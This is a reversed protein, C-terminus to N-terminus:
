SVLTGCHVKMPRPRMLRCAGGCQLGCRASFDVQSNGWSTKLVYVTCGYESAGLGICCPKKPVASKKLFHHMQLRCKKKGWPLFRGKLNWSSQKRLHASNVINIKGSLHFCMGRALIRALQVRIQLRAGHVAFSNFCECKTASSNAM